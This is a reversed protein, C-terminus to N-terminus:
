NSGTGDRSTRPRRRGGAGSSPPSARPTFHLPHIALWAESVTKISVLSILAVIGITRSDADDLLDRSIWVLLGVSVALVIFRIVASALGVAAREGIPREPRSLAIADTTQRVILLALPLWFALPTLSYGAIMAILVCFLGLLLTYVGFLAALYSTPRDGVPPLLAVEHAAQARSVLALGVLGALVAEILYLLLLNGIKAGFLAVALVTLLNYAVVGLTNLLAHPAPSPAPTVAM